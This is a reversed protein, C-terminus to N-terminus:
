SMTNRLPGTGSSTSSCLTSAQSAACCRHVARGVGRWRSPCSRGTTREWTCSPFSSFITSSLPPSEASFRRVEGSMIALDRTSFHPIRGRRAERRLPAPACPRLPIIIIVIEAYPALPFHPARPLAEASCPRRARRDARGAAVKGQAALGDVHPSRPACSPRRRSALPLARSPRPGRAMRNMGDVTRDIGRAMRNFGGAAHSTRGAMSRGGGAMRNAGEVTRDIGGAMRSVGGVTRNVRGAARSVGGATRIFRDATGTLRGAAASKWLSGGSAAEPAGRKRGSATDPM